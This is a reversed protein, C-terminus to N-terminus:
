LRGFQPSPNAREGGTAHCSREPGVHYIVVKDRGERFRREEVFTSLDVNGQYRLEPDFDPDFAAFTRIRADVYVARRRRSM